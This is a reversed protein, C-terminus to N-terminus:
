LGAGNIETLSSAESSRHALNVVTAALATAKTVARSCAQSLSGRLLKVPPM